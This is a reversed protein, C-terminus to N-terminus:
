AMAPSVVRGVAEKGNKDLVGTRFANGLKVNGVNKVYIPIGTQRGLVVNEIDATSPNSRHRARGVVSGSQALHLARAATTRSSSQLLRAGPQEHSWAVDGEGIDRAHVFGLLLDAFDDIEELVRALELLERCSGWPRASPRCGPVPL